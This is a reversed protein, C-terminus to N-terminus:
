PDCSGSGSKSKIGERSKSWSEYRSRSVSWSRSESWSRPGLRSWSRSGSIPGSKSRSWPLDRHPVMLPLMEGGKGNVLEQNLHLDLTDELNLGRGPSLSLAAVSDLSLHLGLGRDLGRDLVRYLGFGLRVGLALEM